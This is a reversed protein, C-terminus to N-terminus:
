IFNCASVSAEEPCTLSRHAGPAPRSAAALHVPLSSPGCPRRLLRGEEAESQAAGAGAGQREAEKGAGPQSGPIERHGALGSFFVAPGVGLVGLHGTKYARESSVLQAM